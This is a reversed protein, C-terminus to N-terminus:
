LMYYKLHPSTYLQPSYSYLTITCGPTIPADSVNVRSDETPVGKAWNKGVAIGEVVNEEHEDGLSQAAADGDHFVEEM